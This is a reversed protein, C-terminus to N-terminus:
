NLRVLEDASADPWDDSQADEDTFGLDPAGGGDAAADDGEFELVPEEPGQLDEPAQLWLDQLQQALQAPARGRIHTGQEGYEELEVVGARHVTDVVKGQDYPVLIDIPILLESVADELLRAFQELGEGTRASVCVTDGRASAVAHLAEPAAVNDIKNWVRMLPIDEVGLDDLVDLVAESQAAAMPNSVDSVHVIVSAEQIEELTARFAAVLQTPLKQIFGVTDTVLVEKGSPLTIRRTTPDLTAFLKDEAIVGADALANLLTSKGANTYGVLCLTPIPATRRRDRYRQRHGRVDEISRRITALKDRLLRKDIEIQKEGMGKLAGGGGGGGGGGAQRELHTWMRTLRPIQYELQAAEVQLMGERTAARQSFIDLILATRDCVRVDAGSEELAKELNRLQTGSLEDDFIVTDVGLANAAAVVEDVKGQGIYSKPNPEAVRQYTSGVVALGATEALQELEGLSDHISFPTKGQRGGSRVEVGILFATEKGSDAAGGRPARTNPIEGWDRRRVLPRRPGLPDGAGESGGAACAARM